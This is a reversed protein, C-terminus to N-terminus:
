LSWEEIPIGLTNFVSDKFFVNKRSRFRNYVKEVNKFENVLNTGHYNMFGILIKGDDIFLELFDILKRPNKDLLPEVLFNIKYDWLYAIEFARRRSDFNPAGPEWKKLRKDHFSTITFLFQINDKYEKLENCIKQISRHDPKTTIILENGPELMTKMFRICNDLIEPIYPIDHVNPYMIKGNRKRFGKNMKHEKLEMNSWNEAKEKNTRNIMRRAWCYKCDYLCGSYNNERYKAIELTGTTIKKAM